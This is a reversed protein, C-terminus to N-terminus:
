GGRGELFPRHLADGQVHLAGATGRSGRRWGAGEVGHVLDETCGNWGQVGLVLGSEAQGQRRLPRDDEFLGEAVAERRDADDVVQLVQRHSRGDVDLDGGIELTDEIVEAGAQFGLVHEEADTDVGGEFGQHLGARDGDLHQGEGFLVVFM